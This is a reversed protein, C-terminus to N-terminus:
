RAGAFGQQRWAEYSIVAVANSLNLSRSDPQMPIRIRFEPAVAALVADPLGRTEPGFLLVDGPQYAPEHHHRSGKTTCAFLRRGAMATLFAAYNPHLQIRGFDAYDLGARRLKKEELDFGLPEILHLRCGNNRVLRMINGTNPAIEPEYLAIEFM